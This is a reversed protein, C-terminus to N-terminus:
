LSKPAFILLAQSTGINQQNSKDNMADKNLIYPVGSTQFLECVRGWIEM